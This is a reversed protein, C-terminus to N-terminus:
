RSQAQSAGGSQTKTAAGGENGKGEKAKKTGREFRSHAFANIAPARGGSSFRAVPQRMRLTLRMSRGVNPSVRTRVIAPRRSSSVVSRVRSGRQAANITNRVTVKAKSKQVQKTKTTQKTQTKANSSQSTNNVQVVSQGQGAANTQVTKKAAGTNQSGSATGSSGGSLPVAARSWEVAGIVLMSFVVIGIMMSSFGTAILKSVTNLTGQKSLKYLSEWFKVSNKQPLKCFEDCFCWNDAL